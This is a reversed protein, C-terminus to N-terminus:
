GVDEAGDCHPCYVGKVTLLSEGTAAGPVDYHDKGWPFGEFAVATFRECTPCQIPKGAPAISQIDEHLVDIKAPANQDWSPEGKTILVLRRVTCVEWRIRKDLEKEDLEPHDEAITEFDDYHLLGGSM